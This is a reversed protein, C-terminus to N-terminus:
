VIGIITGPYYNALISYFSEGKKAMAVAGLQSMGVGHGYGKTIFTVTDEGFEIEFDASRLGLIKRLQTGTFNTGAINLKKVRGSETLEKGGIWQPFPSEKYKQLGPVNEKSFIETFEQRSFEKRAVVKGYLEGDYIESSDVSKLYALDGGWVEKGSATSGASSAHFVAVIPRSDYLLILGKTADAANKANTYVEEGKQGYKEVLKERSTFAQCHASNTCIDAGNHESKDNDLIYNVALTRVAVAQAKLAEFPSDSPMEAAVVCAVYEETDMENIVGSKHDLVKVSGTYATKEPTTESVTKEPIESVQATDYNAATSSNQALVTGGYVDFATSRYLTDSYIGASKNKDRMVYVTIASSLFVTLILVATKKLFRKKM